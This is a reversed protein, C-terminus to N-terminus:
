YRGVRQAVQVFARNRVREVREAAAVARQLVNWSVKRLHLLERVQLDEILTREVGIMNRLVYCYKSFEKNATRNKLVLSRESFSKEDVEDSRETRGVPSM